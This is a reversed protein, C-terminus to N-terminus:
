EAAKSEAVKSEAPPAVLRIGEAGDPAKGFTVALPLLWHATRVKCVGGNGDRCYGYSLAIRLNSEGTEGSLPLDFRVAGDDASAKIRKGAADGLVSKGGGEASVTASLPFDPNLKYGEPLTLEVTVPVSDGRGVTQRPLRAADAGTESAVLENQTEAAPPELGAIELVSAAKTKLDVRLLRHNNTDAVFLTGGAISLGAPESLQLPDLATGAQGTGLITEVVGVGNPGLRVTKIKHNYSDAVFLTEGLITIGLPHQFRAAGDIGDKDGFEFLSRGNPLDSTGAVTTVPEQAGFPVRRIASGESDCVFLTSADSTIGSPQAFAAAARPGNVVDERGSGALVEIEKSGIQHSWIQHPGAMAIYLVRKHVLLDWPSNLSTAKLTGGTERFSSQKGTGALTAVRKKALDVTRIEHNETDAVYLTEGDLALGQPHDFEAEAYGGNARGIRGSGIVDLLKGDLTSVVIRNHSSDSVFLRDSAADALLKGPFRLPTPPTKFRELDFRVPSRDLTGKAEHYAIVRKIATQLIDLNGEGSVEGCFQGEPDILALTPWSSVQYKRWLTMNADNIVPHSIGYRLIAGRIAGSEKENDFKASHVGIVVLENPFEKELKELDPLVHMCNICCFTWFDLLVVKGRLDELSIPGSTNLWGVGGELGPAPFRKPFPNPPHAKAGAKAPENRDPDDAALSYRGAVVAAVCAALLATAVLAAFGRSPRRV